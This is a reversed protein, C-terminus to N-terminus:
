SPRRGRKGAQPEEPPRRVDQRAQALAAMAAQLNFAAQVEKRVAAIVFESRSRYGLLGARLIRDVDVLLDEPLSIAAYGARAM